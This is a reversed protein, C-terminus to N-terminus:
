HRGSEGNEPEELLTGNDYTELVAYDPRLQTIRAVTKFTRSNRQAAQRAGEATDCWEVLSLRDYEIRFPGRAHMGGTVIRYRRQM